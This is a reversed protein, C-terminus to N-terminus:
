PTKKERTTGEPCGDEHLLRFFRELGADRGLGKEAECGEFHGMICLSLVMTSWSSASTERGPKMEDRLRNCVYHKLIMLARPRRNRGDMGGEGEQSARRRDKKVQSFEVLEKLSM